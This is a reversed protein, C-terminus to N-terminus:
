EANLARMLRDKLPYMSYSVANGVRKPKAELPDSYVFGSDFYMLGAFAFLLVVFIHLVWEQEVTTVSYEPSV